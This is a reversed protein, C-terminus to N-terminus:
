ETPVLWIKDQNYIRDIRIKLPLITENEPYSAPLQPTIMAYLLDRVYDNLQENYSPKPFTINTVKRARSITVTVEIVHSKILRDHIHLPRMRSEQCLQHDFRYMFMGYEIAKPDASGNEMGRVGMPLQKDYQRRMHECFGDALAALQSPHYDHPQQAQEEPAAGDKYWKNRSRQKRGYTADEDASNQQTTEQQMVREIQKKVELADALFKEKQQLTREQVRPLKKEPPAAPISKTKQPTPASKQEAQPSASTQPSQNETSQTPHSFPSALTPVITKPPTQKNVTPTQPPKQSAVFKVPAANKRAPTPILPVSQQKSSGLPPTVDFIPCLEVLLLTTMLLYLLCALVFATIQYKRFSTSISEMSSERLKIHAQM